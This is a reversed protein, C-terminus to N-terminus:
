NMRMEIRKDFLVPDIRIGHKCRICTARIYTTDVQIGKYRRDGDVDQIPSLITTVAVHIWKYGFVLQEDPM